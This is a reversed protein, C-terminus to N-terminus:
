CNFKNKIRRCVASFTSEPGELLNAKIIIYDKIEKLDNIDLIFLMKKSYKNAGIGYYYVCKM